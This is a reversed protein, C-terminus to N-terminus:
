KPLNAPYFATRAIRNLCNIIRSDTPYKSLLRYAKKRIAYSRILRNDYICAEKWNGTLKYDINSRSCSLRDKNTNYYPLVIM